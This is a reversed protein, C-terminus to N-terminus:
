YKKLIPMKYILYIVNQLNYKNFRNGISFLSMHPKSYKIGNVIIFFINKCYIYCVITHYVM